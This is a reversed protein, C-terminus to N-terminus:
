RGLLGDLITFLARRARAACDATRARIEEGSQVFEDPALEERFCETMVDVEKEGMELHFQLALVREGYLFGQNACAESSAVRMAGPPVAFTDGHWHLVSMQRGFGRGLPTDLFEDEFFVPFWGIEMRPNKRVEAGLAKAIMQAGLCVGLVHKGESIAQQIFRLEHDLWAHRDADRAGMPGGMVALADYDDHPISLSEQRYQRHRVLQDGRDRIYASIM